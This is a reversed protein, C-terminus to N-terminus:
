VVDTFEINESGSSQLSISQTPEPGISLVVAHCDLICFVDNTVNVNVNVDAVATSTITESTNGIPSGSLLCKDVPVDHRTLFAAPDQLFENRSQLSSALASSVEHLENVQADLKPRQRLSFEERM